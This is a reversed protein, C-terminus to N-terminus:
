RQGGRLKEEHTRKMAEVVYAPLAGAPIVNGQAMAEREYENLDMKRGGKFGLQARILIHQPPYDRWYDALELADTFPMEDVQDLTLGIM